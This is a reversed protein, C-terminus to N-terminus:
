REECDLLKVKLEDSITKMIQVVKKGETIKSYCPYNYSYSRYGQNNFIEVFVVESDPFPEVAGVENDNPLDLINLDNLKNWLVDWGSLPPTLYKSEGLEDFYIASFIRKKNQLSIGRIPRAGFGCWIRIELEEGSLKQKSSSKKSSNVLIKDVIKSFERNLEQQRKIRNSLINNADEQSKVRLMEKLDNNLNGQNPNKAIDRYQSCCILTLAFSIIFLYRFLSTWM